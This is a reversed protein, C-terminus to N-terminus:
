TGDIEKGVGHQLDAALGSLRFDLEGEISARYGHLLLLRDVEFVLRQPGYLVNRQKVATMEVPRFQVHIQLDVIEVM